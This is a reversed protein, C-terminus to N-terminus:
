RSEIKKFLGQDAAPRGEPRRGNITIETSIGNLCFDWKGNVELYGVPYNMVSEPDIVAVFNEGM